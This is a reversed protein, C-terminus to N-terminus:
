IYAKRSIDYTLVGENWLLKLEDILPQLYVDIKNKPNHPGLIILTLFMYPTTMCLKPPLNYPTVIVPWCSYPSATHNFPMFGDTCLGLSVNGEEAAFSPYIQDFHKWAEGDSPHCMVGPERKNEYHWRMHPASSMSAYLRKLRPILPLYHMRKMLVEKCKERGNTKEKYRPANCFKCERLQKCENTYFLMCCNVCCDIKEVTRGLKSVIKKTRYYDTPVLNNPPHTEKMLAVMQNFSRQSMNGESKIMLLRVATSLETHDNCGRWLPKQAVHLLDYFKQDSINPSEEIDEEFQMQHQLGVVDYIMNEFTSHHNSHAEQASKEKNIEVLLEPDSEGHCTWNWYNPKFGKQFIHVKVEEFHKLPVNKCNSCPCRIEDNIIGEQQLAFSVFEDLGNRFEETYGKRCPNLRNYMWSHDLQIDM